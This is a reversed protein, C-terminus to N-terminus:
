HTLGTPVLDTQTEPAGHSLSTAHNRRSLLRFPFARARPRLRHPGEHRHRPELGGLLARVLLESVQSGDELVHPGLATGDSLRHKPLTLLRLPENLVELAPDRTALSMESIRGARLWASSPTFCLASLSSSRSAFTSSFTSPM